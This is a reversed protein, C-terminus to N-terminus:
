DEREYIYGDASRGSLLLQLREEPESESNETQWPHPIRPFHEESDEPLRIQEWSRCRISPVSGTETPM